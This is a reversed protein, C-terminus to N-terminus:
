RLLSRAAPDLLLTEWREGAFARRWAAAGEPSTCVGAAVFAYEARVPLRPYDNPREESVFYAVRRAAREAVPLITREFGDVFAESPPAELMAISVAMPNGAALPEGQPPRQLGAVDFGTGPRASRLLLVNDSDIMTANAAERNRLWTQSTYFRELARGRTEMGDFGRFWVFADPDAPDRYHGIPVMGLAEQSEVFEREFIDILVDRAGPRMAYRRLEVVGFRDGARTAVGTYLGDDLQNGM